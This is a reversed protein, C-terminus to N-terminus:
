AVKKWGSLGELLWRSKGGYLGVISGAYFFSRGPTVMIFGSGTEIVSFPTTPQPDPIVPIEGTVKIPEGATGGVIPHVIVSGASASKTGREVVEAVQQVHEGSLMNNPESTGVPIPLAVGADVGPKSTLAAYNPEPFPKPFDFEVPAPKGTWVTKPKRFFIAWGIVALVAALVLSM